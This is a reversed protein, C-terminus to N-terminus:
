TTAEEGEGAAEGSPPPEGGQMPLAPVEGDAKRDMAVVIMSWACAAGEIVSEGALRLVWKEGGPLAAEGVRFVGTCERPLKALLLRDFFRGGAECQHHRQEYPPPKAGCVSCGDRPGDGHCEICDAEHGCTECEIVGNGDCEKCETVGMDNCASCAPDVFERFVAGDIVGLPSAPAALIAQVSALRDGESPPYDAALGTVRFLVRGDTAVLSGDPLRHPERYLSGSREEDCLASLWPLPRSATTTTTM